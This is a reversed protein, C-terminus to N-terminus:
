KDCVKEQVIHSTDGSCGVDVVLSIDSAEGLKIDM